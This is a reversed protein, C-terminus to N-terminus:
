TQYKVLLLALSSKALSGTFKLNMPTKPHHLVFTTKFFYVDM